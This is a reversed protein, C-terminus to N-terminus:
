YIFRVSNTWYNDPAPPQSKGYMFVGGEGEHQSPCVLMCLQGKQLVEVGWQKNKKVHFRRDSDSFTTLLSLSVHSEGFALM